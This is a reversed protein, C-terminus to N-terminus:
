SSTAAIKPPASAKRKAAFHSILSAATSLLGAFFTPVAVFISILALSIGEQQTDSSQVMTNLGWILGGIGAILSVGLLAVGVYLLVDQIPRKM